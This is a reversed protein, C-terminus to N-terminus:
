LGSDQLPYEALSKVPTPSSITYIIYWKVDCPVDLLTAPDLAGGMGTRAGNGSIDFHGGEPELRFKTLGDWYITKSRGITGEAQIREETVQDGRLRGPPLIRLLLLGEVEGNEFKQRTSEINQNHIHHSPV